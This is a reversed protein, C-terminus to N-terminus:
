RRGEYEGEGEHLRTFSATLVQFGAPCLHCRSPECLTRNLHVLAQTHLANEVPTGKKRFRAVVSNEEPPLSALLELTSAQTYTDGQAMAYAFRFPVVANLMLVQITSAGVTKVGRKAEAGRLRYHTDWYRSAQVGFLRQLEASGKAEMARSFHNAGQGLLAALQAIRVEPFSPPRLRLYKWEGLSIPHLSFRHQQYTYERRLEQVYAEDGLLSDALMGAQGFLIAELTPLEDKLKYLCKLPTNCALHHMPDANIRLGLSRAVQRYFAEEWGLEAEAVEQLIAQSKEQLRSTVTRTLLQERLYPNLDALATGCRPLELSTRLADLIELLRPLDPFEMTAIPQGNARVADADAQAVVHLIVTNYAADDQHGHRYWDSARAHIEVDGVWTLQGIKLTAQRFDPGADHNSYGPNLIEVREGATTVLRVGLRHLQGWLAQLVDESPIRM